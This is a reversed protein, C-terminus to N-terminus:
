LVQGEAMAGRFGAPDTNRPHHHHHHSRCPSQKFPPPLPQYRCGANILNPYRSCSFISLDLRATSDFDQRNVDPPGRGCGSRLTLTLDNEPVQHMWTGLLSASIWVEQLKLVNFCRSDMVGTVWKQAGNTCLPVPLCRMHPATSHKAQAKCRGDGSAEVM